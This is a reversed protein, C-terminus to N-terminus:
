AAHVVTETGINGRAGPPNEIIHRIITIREDLSSVSAEISRANIMISLSRARSEPKAGCIELQSLAAGVSM